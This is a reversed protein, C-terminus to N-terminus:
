RFPNSSNNTGSQQMDKYLFRGQDTGYALRSVGPVFEPTRYSAMSGWPAGCGGCGVLDVIYM